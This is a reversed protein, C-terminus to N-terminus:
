GKIDNQYVELTVRTTASEDAAGAATCVLAVSLTEDLDADTRLDAFNDDDGRIMGAAKVTTILTADTARLNVPNANSVESGPVGKVIRLAYTGSLAASNNVFCRGINHNPQLNFVELIDGVAPRAKNDGIKVGFSYLKPRFDAVPGPLDYGKTNQTTKFTAM